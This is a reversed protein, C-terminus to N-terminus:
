NTQATKTIRSRQTYTDSYYTTQQTKNKTRKSLATHQREEQTRAGTSRSHQTLIEVGPVIKPNYSKERQELCALSTFRGQKDPTSVREEIIEGSCPQLHFTRPNRKGPISHRTVHSLPWTASARTARTITHLSTCWSSITM